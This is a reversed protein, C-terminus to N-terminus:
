KEIATLMDQMTEEMHRFVFRQEEKPFDSYRVPAGIRVSVNAKRLWPKHSEFCEETKSFIIPIMPANTRQALKFSGAHFPLLRSKDENRNRTGEPFIAMPIGAKVNDIGAMITRMGQEVNDRNLFLGHLLKIWSSFVPIKELNDKAIFGTPRSFLPYMIVIDFISRHNMIYVPTEEEILNEKGEIQLKVGTILLIAKCAFRIYRFFIIDVTKKTKEKGALRLLASFGWVPFGFLFFFFLFIAALFTKM